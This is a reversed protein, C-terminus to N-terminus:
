RSAVRPADGSRPTQRAERLTAEALIESSDFLPLSADLQSQVLTLETCGLIIGASGAEKLDRISHHFVEIVPETADGAKMSRIAQYVQEQRQDDPVVPAYGSEKLIRDYLKLRLTATTALIGIKAPPSLEEEVRVVTERLINLLTVNLAQQLEEFYYHATNCPIAIIEAGWDELQRLRRILQPRPDEGRSLLHTTRDPITPDSYILVELHDQDRRAGTKTTLQLYFAASAEPGMGGLVGVKKSM